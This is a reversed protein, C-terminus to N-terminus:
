RNRRTTSGSETTSCISHFVRHQIFSQPSPRLSVGNAFQLFRGSYPQLKLQEGGVEVFRTSTVLIRGSDDVSWLGEDFAWHANKSLAIGNGLDDNQSVAWPEIHAADVITAGDTTMCCLGTLACTFKYQSVIQVAFRASRGKKRAAEEADHNLGSVERLFLSKDPVAVGMSEFLAIRERPEFYRSIILLKAKTRFNADQLVEFFEANLECAFCNDPSSASEMEVTFPEWFAQTKLHYFPYRIDLRSPWRDSVIASFSKFRLVLGATRTITRGALDGEDAMEILCLLLLPKHPAKGAGNRGTAPNLKTLKGLWKRIIEQTSQPDM